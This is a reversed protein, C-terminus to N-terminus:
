VHVHSTFSKSCLTLYKLLVLLICVGCVLDNITIIPLTFILLSSLIVNLACVLVQNTFLRMELMIILIIDM